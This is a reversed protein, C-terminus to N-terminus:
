LANNQPIGMQTIHMSIILILVSFELISTSYLEVQKWFLNKTIFCKLNDKLHITRKYIQYSRKREFDSAHTFHVLNMILIKVLLSTVHLKLPIKNSFTLIIIHRHWINEKKSNKIADLYMVNQKFLICVLVPYQRKLWEYCSDFQEAVSKNQLNSFRFVFHLPNM